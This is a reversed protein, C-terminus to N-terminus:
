MSIPRLSTPAHPHTSEKSPGMSSDHKNIYPWSFIDFLSGSDAIKMSSVTTSTLILEKRTAPINKAFREPQCHAGWRM